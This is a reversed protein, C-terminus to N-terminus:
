KYEWKYGGATRFNKRNQCCHIINTRTISLARAADAASDWIKAVTGDIYKQIIKRKRKEFMNPHLIHTSHLMNESSTAWELNSARNDYKHGNIHNVQPKNDPNPIFAEAVLRHVSIQCRKKAKYLVVFLYNGRKCISINRWTNTIIKGNINRRSQVNGFNSVRYIGGSGPILKWEEM